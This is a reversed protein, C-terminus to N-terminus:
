VTKGEEKPKPEIPGPLPWDRGCLPCHGALDEPPELCVVRPRVTKKATEQQKAKAKKLKWRAFLLVPLTVIVFTLVFWLVNAWFMQWFFDTAM